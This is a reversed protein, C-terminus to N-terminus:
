SARQRRFNEAMELLERGTITVNVSGPYKV